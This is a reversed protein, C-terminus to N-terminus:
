FPYCHKSIVDIHCYNIYNLMYIEMIFLIICVNVNFIDMLLEYIYKYHFINMDIFMM